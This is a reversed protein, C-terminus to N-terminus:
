AELRHWDDAHVVKAPLDVDRTWAFLCLFPVAGTHTAHVAWPENWAPENAQKELWPQDTGFRWRHPGTIPAYLEPAAHHHDRYLIAPAILFLGLEWDQAHILGGSGILSAFAHAKPFWEGIEEPPYSDYTVWRLYPKANWLAAQLADAQQVASIAEDLWGGQPVPQAELRTAPGKGRRALGHRVEAIGPDSFRSLYRDSEFILSRIAHTTGM